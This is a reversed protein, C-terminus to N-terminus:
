TNEVNHHITYIETNGHGLQTEMSATAEAGTPSVWSPSTSPTSRHHPLESLVRTLDPVPDCLACWYFSYCPRLTERKKM